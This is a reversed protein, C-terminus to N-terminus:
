NNNLENQLFIPNFQNEEMINDSSLAKYEKYYYRENGANYVIGMQGSTNLKPLHKYRKVKYPPLAIQFRFGGNSAASRWEDSSKMAYFGITAYRFHRLVEFKVGRDGLLWKQYGLSFQTNYRPWYFNAQATYTWDLHEKDYHYHFGDWFGTGTRGLRGEINFRPDKFQYKVRGDIGFRDGTFTGIAIRATLRDMFRFNQSLNIPGPHVKDEYVGYGDNVIPIKIMGALKMGPWLSISVEPSFDLMWQYVQNLILNMFALQPYVKIDVNFQSSNNKKEGKVYDWAQQVDATVLWKTGHPEHYAQVQPINYQLMIIRWTKLSDLHANEILKVAERLGKSPLKQADNELTFIYDSATEAGRVNTFGAGVLQQVVQEQARLNPVGLVILLLFIAWRTILICNPNHKM